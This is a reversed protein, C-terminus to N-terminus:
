NVKIFSAQATIKCIGTYIRLTMYVLVLIQEFAVEYINKLYHITKFKVEVKLQM